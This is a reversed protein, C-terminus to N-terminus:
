TRSSRKGFRAAHRSRSFAAGPHPSGYSTSGPSRMAGFHHHRHVAGDGVGEVPREELRAMAGERGLEVRPSRRREAVRVAVLAGFDVGGAAREDAREALRAPERMGDGAADVAAGAVRDVRAGDAEGALRKGAVVAEGVERERHLAEARARDAEGARGLLLRVVQRAHGGALRDGREREGLGVGAGVDGRHGARRAGLGAAVDEVALLGPDRVAADGVEVDDERAGAIGLSGAVFPARPMLAKMTSASAGPKEIASRMSTIAGCGSARRRKLPQRMGAVRRM